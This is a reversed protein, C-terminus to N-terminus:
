DLNDRLAPSIPLVPLSNVATRTWPQQPERTWITPEASTDRPLPLLEKHAGSLRFERALERLKHAMERYHGSDSQASSAQPDEM